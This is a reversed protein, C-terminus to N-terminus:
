AEASVGSTRTTDRRRCDPAVLVAPAPPVLLVLLVLPGLLAPPVLLVLVAPALPGLLVLLALVVPALLGPLGLLVLLGLRVLLAPFAAALLYLPM